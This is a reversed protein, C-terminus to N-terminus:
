KEAGTVIVGRMFYRQALILVILPVIMVVLSAAQILNEIPVRSQYNQVGFSVPMLKSNVGLYLSALRTENWSYFFHLLAFGTERPTLLFFDTLSLVFSALIPLLNFIVLGILWPSILLLGTRHKYLPKVREM